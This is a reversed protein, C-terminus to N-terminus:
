RGRGHVRWLAWLFTAAYLAFIAKIVLATM